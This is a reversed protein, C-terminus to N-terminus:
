VISSLRIHGDVARARKLRVNFGINCLRGQRERPTPKHRVLEAIRQREGLPAAHGILGRPPVTNREGIRRERFADRGDPLGHRDGHDRRGGDLPTVLDRQSIDGLHRDFVRHELDGLLQAGQGDGFGQIAVGVVVQVTARLDVVHVRAARPRRQDRAVNEVEVFDVAGVRRQGVEARRAVHTVFLRVGLDVDASARRFSRGVRAADRVVRSDDM